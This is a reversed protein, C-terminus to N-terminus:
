EGGSRGVEEMAPSSYVLFKDAIHEGMRFVVVSEGLRGRNTRPEEIAAIVSATINAQNPVPQRDSLMGELLSSELDFDDDLNFKGGKNVPNVDKNQDEEDESLDEAVPGIVQENVEACIENEINCFAVVPRELSKSRQNEQSVGTLSVTGAHVHAERDRIQAM